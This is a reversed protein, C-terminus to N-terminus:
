LYCRVLKTPSNQLTIEAGESYGYDANSYTTSYQEIHLSDNYAPPLSQTAILDYTVKYYLSFLLSKRRDFTNMYNLEFSNM